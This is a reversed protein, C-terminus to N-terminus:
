WCRRLMENEVEAPMRFAQDGVGQAAEVRERQARSAAVSSARGSRRRVEVLPPSVAPGVADMTFDIGRLETSNLVFQQPSGAPPTWRKYTRSDPDSPDLDWWEVALMYDGRTFHTGDVIETDRVGMGRPAQESRGEVKKIISKTCKQIEDGIIDMERLTNITPDEPNAMIGGDLLAGQM